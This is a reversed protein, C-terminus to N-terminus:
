EAAEARMPREVSAPWGAADPWNESFWGMAGNFRGVTIDAGARLATLKKSDGFLRHSLTVERVGTSAMYADAVALLNGIEIM